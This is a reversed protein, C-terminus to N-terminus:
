AKLTKYFGVRKRFGPAHLIPLIPVTYTLCRVLITTFEKTFGVNTAPTTPFTMVLFALVLARRLDDNALLTVPRDPLGPKRIKPFVRAEFVVRIHV